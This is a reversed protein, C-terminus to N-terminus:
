ERPRAVKAAGGALRSGPVRLQILTKELIRAATPAAVTGGGPNKGKTPADITVLVLVRPSEAPAGCLFSCVYENESYRGTQPDLKQATGTKGFVSHGAIKARRGTGRKVVERMPTEVLWKAIQPSVTNSVVRAPDLETLYTDSDDDGLGETRILTPRLLRGGNALAAHATILQIPTVAIEQGMPVSGTSYSNWQRLPRVIGVVEGPLSIGTKTGFGFAMVAEHLRPNGLRQGIKAMGINSSKVLVDTVSLTGYPHHDHLLRNGMRFKGQECDFTENEHIAQHQIAWAVVFPKFTSGPEVISSVAHNKWSDPRANEPAAPDLTPRSAMALVEANNPDLVIVSGGAPKWEQMARDLEREAFLQIVADITLVVSRGQVPARDSEHHIQLVRGRADRLLREHGDRGGLVADFSQEIGGRGKGDIDRLGLVHAALKGQPYRRAFEERFGWIGEPLNLARVQDVQETSLRRKVWLFQKDQHTAIREFLRDADLELAEALSSVVPWSATIKTPVLYLSQTRVTTALVRGQRDVIEGPRARIPVVLSHQRAARAALEPGAIFQLHVLRGALVCWLSLLLAAVIRLRWPSPKRTPTNTRHM